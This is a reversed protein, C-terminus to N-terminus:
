QQEKVLEAFRDLHEPRVVSSGVPHSAGPASPVDWRSDLLRRAAERLEDREARAKEVADATKEHQRISHDREARAGGLEVALRANKRRLEEIMVPHPGCAQSNSRLKRVAAILDDDSAPMRDLVAWLERRLRDASHCKLHLGSDVQEVVESLADLETSRNDGPRLAERAAQVLRDRQTAAEHWRKRLEERSPLVSEDWEPLPETDTPRGDDWGLPKRDQGLIRCESCMVEPGSLLLARLGHTPCDVVVPREAPQVAGGRILGALYDLHQSAGEAVHELDIGSRLRLALFLCREAAKELHDTM